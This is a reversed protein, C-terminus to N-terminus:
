IDKNQCKTEEKAIPKLVGYKKAIDHIHTNIINTLMSYSISYESLFKNAFSKVKYLKMSEIEGIDFYPFANRTLFSGLIEINKKSSIFDADLERSIQEAILDSDYYNLGDIISNLSNFYNMIEEDTAGLTKLDEETLTIEKIAIELRDQMIPNIIHLKITKKKNTQLELNKAM